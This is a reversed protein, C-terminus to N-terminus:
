NNCTRTNHGKGGCNGCIRRKIRRKKIAAREPFLVPCTRTNHGLSGCEGCIRKKKRRRKSPKIRL